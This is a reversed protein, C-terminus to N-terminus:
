INEDANGFDNFLSEIKNIPLNWWEFSRVKSITEETFRYKIPKAPVGGVVSYPAVDKTVVAGAGIIAGDGINVGGMILAHSGIWVDNGVVVSYHSEDKPMKYIDKLIAEGRCITYGIQSITNYYLSPHTSLRHLPHHGICVSVSDAISCFRGFKVKYLNCNAGIYTFKGMFCDTVVSNAGLANPGEFFSCHIIANLGVKKLGNYKYQYLVSRIKSIINM